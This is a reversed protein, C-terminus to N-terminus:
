QCSQTKDYSDSIEFLDKDKALKNVLINTIQKNNVDYTMLSKINQYEKEQPLLTARKIASLLALRMSKEVAYGTKNYFHGVEKYVQMMPCKHPFNLFMRYIAEVHYNFGDQKSSFCHSILIDSIKSKILQVNRYPKGDIIRKIEFLMCNFMLDFNQNNFYKIAMVGDYLYYKDDSILLISKCFNKYIIDIIFVCSEKNIKTADLIFLDVKNNTLYGFLDQYEGHQYIIDFGMKEFKDKNFYNVLDSQNDQYICTKLNAGM